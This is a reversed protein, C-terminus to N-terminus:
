ASNIIGNQHSVSTLVGLFCSTSWISTWQQGVMQSAPRADFWCQNLAEHKSPQTWGLLCLVNRYCKYLTPGDDFVKPRREVFRRICMNQKSTQYQKISSAAILLSVSGIDTLHQALTAPAPWYANLGLWYKMSHTCVHQRYPWSAKFWLQSLTPGGDTISACM